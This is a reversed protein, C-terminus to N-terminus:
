QNEWVERLDTDVRRFPDLATEITKKLEDGDKTVRETLVPNGPFEILGQKWIQKARDIQDLKWYGDGLSVYGRVHYPRKKESKHIEMAKELDAVGLHARKFIKPWFLYSNGRTYYTLWNPSCEVAKSFQTLATNALIVQTVAGAEPIKDVYAFGLNLWLNGLGSHEATLKEFTKLSRETAKNRIAARRYESAARLDGPSSLLASELEQLDKTEAGRGPLAAFAAVFVVLALLRRM